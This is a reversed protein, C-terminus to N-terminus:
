AVIYSSAGSYFGSIGGSSFSTSGSVFNCYGNIVGATTVDWAGPSGLNSGVNLGMSLWRAQYLPRFRAPITATIAIAATKDCSAYCDTWAVFVATGTPGGMRMFTFTVPITAATFPGSATTTMTYIEFQNMAMPLYGSLSNTFQIGNSFVANSTTTVNLNGGTTLSLNNSGGSSISLAGSNFATMTNTYLTSSNLYVPAGFVEISAENFFMSSNVTIGGSDTDSLTDIQIPDTFIKTGAITRNGTTLVVTGTGGSPITVASPGWQTGDFTMMQNSAPATMSVSIGRIKDADVYKKNNITSM